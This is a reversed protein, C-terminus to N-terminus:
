LQQLLDEVGKQICDVMSRYDIDAGSSASVELKRAIEAWEQEGMNLLLGKISHGLKSIHQLETEGDLVEYLATLSNSLSNASSKVMMDVQNDDLRYVTKFHNRLREESVKSPFMTEESKM